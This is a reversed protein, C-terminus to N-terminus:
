NTSYKSKVGGIAFIYIDNKCNVSIIMVYFAEFYLLM